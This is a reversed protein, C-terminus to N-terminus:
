VLTYYKSSIPKFFVHGLHILTLDKPHKEFALFLRMQLELKKTQHTIHIWFQLFDEERYKQLSQM